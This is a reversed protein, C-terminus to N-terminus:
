QYSWADHDGSKEGGNIVQLSFIIGFFAIM